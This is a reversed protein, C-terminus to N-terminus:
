EVTCEVAVPAPGFSERAWDVTRRLGSEFPVTPRYGLLREAKSIDAQSDRV